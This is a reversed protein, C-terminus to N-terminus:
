GFLMVTLVQLLRIFYLTFCSGMLLIEPFFYYILRQLNRNKRTSAKFDPYVDANTHGILLFPTEYKNKFSFISEKLELTLFSGGEMKAAHHCCICSKCM